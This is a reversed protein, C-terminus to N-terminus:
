RLLRELFIHTKQMSALKVMTQYPTKVYDTELKENLHYTPGVCDVYFFMVDDDNHKVIFRVPTSQSVIGDIDPWGPIPSKFKVRTGVDLAHLMAFKIGRRRVDEWVRLQKEKADKMTKPYCWSGDGLCLAFSTPNDEESSSLINITGFPFTVWPRKYSM